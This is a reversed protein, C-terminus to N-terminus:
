KRLLFWAVIGLVLLLSLIILFLNKERIEAKLLNLEKEMLGAEIESDMSAELFGQNAVILSDKLRSYEELVELANKFDKEAKLAKFLSYLNKQRLNDWGMKKAVGEARDYFVVALATRGREYYLDGFLSYINILYSSDKGEKFYELSEELFSASKQYEKKNLYLAGINCKVKAEDERNGSKEYIELAQKYKKIADDHRGRSKFFIGYDNFVAAVDDLSDMSFFLDLSHQYYKEATDDHGARDHVLAINHLCQAFGYDNGVEKEFEASKLFAELAENYRDKFYRTLGLNNYYVAKRQPVSINEMLSLSKKYFDGSDDFRGSYYAIEARYYWGIAELSDSIGRAKRVFEVSLSDALDLSDPILKKIAHELQSFYASNQVPNQSILKNSVLFMGGLILIKIVAFYKDLKGPGM